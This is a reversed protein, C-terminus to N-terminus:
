SRSVQAIRFRRSIGRKANEIAATSFRLRKGSGCATGSPDAAVNQEVFNRDVGAWDNAVCFQQRGFRNAIGIKANAWEGIKGDLLAAPCEVDEVGDM